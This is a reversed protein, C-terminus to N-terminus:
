KNRRSLHMKEEFDKAFSASTEEDCISIENTDRVYGNHLGRGDRGHNRVMSKTPLVCRLNKEMMYASAITDGQTGGKRKSMRVLSILISELKDAEFYKQVPKAKYM